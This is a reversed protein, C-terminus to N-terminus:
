NDNQLDEMIENFLKEDTYGFIARDMWNDFGESTNELMLIMEQCAMEEKNITM